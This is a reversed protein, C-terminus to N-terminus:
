RRYIETIVGGVIRVRYSCCWCEYWGPQRKADIATLSRNTDCGPCDPVTVVQVDRRDDM